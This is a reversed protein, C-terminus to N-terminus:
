MAIYNVGTRIYIYIYIYTYTYTYTYTTCYRRKIIVSLVITVLATLILFSVTAQGGIVFKCISNSSFGQNDNLFLICYRDSFPSNETIKKIDNNKKAFVGLSALAFTLAVLLILCKVILLIITTTKGIPVPIEVTKM